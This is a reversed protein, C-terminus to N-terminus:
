AAPATARGGRSRSRYAVLLAGIVAWAALTVLPGATHAGHFYSLDTIARVAAGPPLLGSVARAAAPLLDAGTTAGSTANGVTLLLLTAVPIGVPGLYTGLLKTAFAAAASLLTLTFALPVFPAPVAHLVPGAITAAVVGIAASTGTILRFRHRLHLLKTLGLANQALVFGALSVGFAIYFGALGRADYRVLPVVDETTVQRGAGGAFAGVLDKVAATTSLGDAGALDLHLRGDGATSLAASVDHRELAQRGAAADAVPHVEISDGMARGVESALAQGSVAIPVQHPQPDRQLGVYCGIFAAVVVLAIVAPQLWARVPPRGAAAPPRPAPPQTTADAHRERRPATEVTSDM